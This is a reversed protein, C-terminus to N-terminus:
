RVILQVGAAPATAAAPTQAALSPQEGTILRDPAIGAAALYQVLAQARAAALASDTDPQRISIEILADPCSAAAAAIRDLLGFSSTEITADTAAFAITGKELLHNIVSQCATADVPAPAPAVDLAVDLTFGSPLGAALNARVSTVAEPYLVTGTVKLQDDDFRVEGSELRSLQRMATMFAAINVINITYDLKFRQHGDAPRPMGSM